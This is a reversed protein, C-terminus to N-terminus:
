ACSCMYRHPHSSILGWPTTTAPPQSGGSAPVLFQSQDEALATCARLQWAM